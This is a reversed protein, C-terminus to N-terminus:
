GGEELTVVESGGIDCHESVSQPLGAAGNRSGRSGAPDSRHTRRKEIGEEWEWGEMVVSTSVKWGCGWTRHDEM